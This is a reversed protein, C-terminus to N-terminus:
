ARTTFDQELASEVAQAKECTCSASLFTLVLRVFFGLMELDQSPIRFEGSPRAGCACTEGEVPQNESASRECTCQGAPRAGSNITLTEHKEESDDYFSSVAHAAPVPSPTRLPLRTAPATFLVRRAVPVSPRPLASVAEM